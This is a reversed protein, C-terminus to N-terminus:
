RPAFAWNGLAAKTKRIKPELKGKKRGLEVVKSLIWGRGTENQCARIEPDKNAQKLYASPKGKWGMQELHRLLERRTLAPQSEPVPAPLWDASLERYRQRIDKLTAFVPLWKQQEQAYPLDTGQGPTEVQELEDELDILEIEHPRTRIQESFLRPLVVLMANAKAKRKIFACGEDWVAQAEQNSLPEGREARMREHLQSWVDGVLVQFQIPNMM